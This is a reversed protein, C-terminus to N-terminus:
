LAGSRSRSNLILWNIICTRFFRIVDRRSRDDNIWEISGETTKQDVEGAFLQGEHLIGSRRQYVRDAMKRAEPSDSGYKKIFALFKQRVQYIPQDCCECRELSEDKHDVVVLTELSSVCAAFALSPAAFFLQIGQDFLFCSSLFANKSADSLPMYQDMFETIREPLEFVDSTKGVVYQRPTESQYYENSGVLRISPEDMSSFGDVIWASIGKHNYAAQGWCPGASPAIDKENMPLKMFWQQELLGSRYQFLRSKAFTSLVLLIWKRVKASSENDIMPLLGQEPIEPNYNTESIDPLNYSFELLAPHHGMGWQLTPAEPFIPRLQFLSGYRYTGIIRTEAFIIEQRTRVIMELGKQLM